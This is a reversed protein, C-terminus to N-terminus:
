KEPPPGEPIIIWGIIYTIVLPAIGTAIGLFVFLLRLLTPDVSLMEGLGGCIGAIMRNKRSRYLTKM